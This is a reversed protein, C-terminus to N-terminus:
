IDGDNDHQEEEQLNILQDMRNEFDKLQKSCQKSLKLGEEFLDMAEELDLDNSNLLNVIEDLRKMAEQFKLKKQAM